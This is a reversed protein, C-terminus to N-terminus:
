ELARMLPSNEIHMAEDYLKAGNKFENVILIKVIGEEGYWKRYRKLTATAEELNGIPRMDKPKPKSSYQLHKDEM